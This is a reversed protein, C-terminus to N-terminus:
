PNVIIKPSSKGEAMKMKRHIYASYEYTMKKKHKNIILKRSTWEKIKGDQDDKMLPLFLYTIGAIVWISDGTEIKCLLDAMPIIVTAAKKIKQATFMLSDYSFLSENVAVFNTTDKNAFDLSVIVLRPSRDDGPKACFSASLLLVLAVISLIRM